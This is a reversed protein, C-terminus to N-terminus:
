RYYLVRGTRVKYLAGEKAIYKDMGQVGVTTSLTVTLLPSLTLSHSLSLSIGLALYCICSIVHTYFANPCISNTKLSKLHPRTNGLNGTNILCKQLTSFM